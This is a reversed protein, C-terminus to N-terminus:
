GKIYDLHYSIDIQDRVTLFFMTPPELNFSTLKISFNGDLVLHNDKDKIQALSSIEKELGNLTLFGKILFSNDLREISNLRFSIQPFTESHLTEYMHLDRKENDSHLSFTTLSITGKLSSLKENMTLHSIIDKTSPNINKDGFVETHTKIKGDVFKLDQANVFSLIGTFLFIYVLKVMTVGKKTITTYSLNQNHM